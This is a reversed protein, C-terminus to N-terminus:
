TITPLPVQTCRAALGGTVVGSSIKIQLAGAEPIPLCTWRRRHIAASVTFVLPAANLCKCTLHAAQGGLGGDSFLNPAGPSGSGPNLPLGSVDGTPSIAAPTSSSISNVRASTTASPPEVSAVHRAVAANAAQLQHINKRFQPDFHTLGSWTGIEDNRM